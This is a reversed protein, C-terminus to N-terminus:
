TLKYVCVKTALAHEKIMSKYEGESCIITRKTGDM